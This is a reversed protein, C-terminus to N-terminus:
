KPCNLTMEVLGPDGKISGPRVKCGTVTQTAIVADAQVQATERLKIRNHRLAQAHTKNYFVTFNNKGVTVTKQATYHFGVKPTNCGALLVAGAM